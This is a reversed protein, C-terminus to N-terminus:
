QINDEDADEVGDAFSFPLAGQQLLYNLGIQIVLDLEKEELEGEFRVTGEKTELTKNILMRKRRKNEEFSMDFM